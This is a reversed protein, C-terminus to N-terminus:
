QSADHGRIREILESTSRNYRVPISHIQGGYATVVDGGVIDAVKWDGGKVLHDPRVSRILELPTEADFPVVLSVCGLAALLAMRDELANIPRGHGKDLKKMSADSNVGIILSAGLAAADELYSIHGRHLIDFCGNTFVFPHPLAALREALTESGQVIKTESSTM